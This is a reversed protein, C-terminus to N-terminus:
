QAVLEVRRNKARGQETQNSQVPATPGAGFPRLRAAAIGHKGTLAKVVAEARERSLKLNSDFAGVNDTHGVVYLKLKPEARSLKAIEELAPNSEPKLVSKGTDFYIGYLAVKGAGQLSQAMQSADALVDQRMAQKEVIRLEIIGNSAAGVHAWTELGGRAVALTVYQTGGDEFEHVVQGGVARAANAYNRTVQLGSPQRAGENAYYIVMLTRGEVAQNKGGAVPFEFRGFQTEECRYIHFGPMRSFVSPDKCGEADEQALAVQGSALLVGLVGLRGLKGIATM